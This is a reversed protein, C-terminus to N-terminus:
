YSFLLVNIKFLKFLYKSKPTVSSSSEKKIVIRQSFDPKLFNTSLNLRNSFVVEISENLSNWDNAEECQKILGKLYRETLNIIKVQEENEKKMNENTCLPAGQSSLRIAEAAVQNRDELKKKDYKFSSSSRCYM